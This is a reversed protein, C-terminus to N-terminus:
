TGRQNWPFNTKCCYPYKGVWGFIQLISTSICCPRPFSFRLSSLPFVQLFPRQICIKFTSSLQWLYLTFYIFSIQNSINFFLYAQCFLFLRNCKSYHRPVSSVHVLRMLFIYWEEFRTHPVLFLQSWSQLRKQKPIFYRLHLWFTESSQTWTRRSVSVVKFLLSKTPYPTYVTRNAKEWPNRCQDISPPHAAAANGGILLLSFNFSNIKSTRNFLRPRVSNRFGNNSLQLLSSIQTSSTAATLTICYNQM